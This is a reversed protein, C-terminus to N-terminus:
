TYMILGWIIISAFLVLVIMDCFKVLGMYSTPPCKSMKVISYQMLILHWLM